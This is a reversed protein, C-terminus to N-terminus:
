EAAHTAGIYSAAHPENLSSWAVRYRGTEDPVLLESERGTHATLRASQLGDEEAEELSAFPGHARGEFDVWWTDRSFIVVYLAKSM